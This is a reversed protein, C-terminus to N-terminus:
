PAARLDQVPSLCPTALNQVSGPPQGHLLGSAQAMQGLLANILAQAPRTEPLWPSGLLVLSADALRLAPAEALLKGKANHFPEIVLVGRVSAQQDFCPELASASTIVTADGKKM